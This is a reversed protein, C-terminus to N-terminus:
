SATEKAAAAEPAAKKARPKKPAPKTVRPKRPKKPRLNDKTWASVAADIVAEPKDVGLGALLAVCARVNEAYDGWGHYGGVAVSALTVVLAPAIQEDTLKAVVDETDESEVKMWDEVDRLRQWPSATLILRGFAPTVADAPVNALASKVVGEAIASFCKTKWKMHQGEYERVAEEHSKEAARDEVSRPAKGNGGSAGGVGYSRVKPHHKKCAKSICVDLVQLPGGHVIVGRRVHDCPKGKVPVWRLGGVLGHKKDQLNAGPMNSASLQLLTDPTEFADAFAPFYNPADESAPDVKTHKEIWEDLEALPAPETHTATSTMAGPTWFTRQYRCAEKLANIQVFPTLRALREAHAVTIEHLEFAARAQKTLSHLKLRRYVYDPSKGVLAALVAVTNAKDVKQLDRYSDAEDLPHPNERQLNEVASIRMVEADTAERVIVPVQELGALTAAKFRREGAILEYGPEGIVRRALLPELVGDTRISAALEDLNGWERRRNFPSPRLNSVATLLQNTEATM